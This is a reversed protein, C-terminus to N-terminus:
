SIVCKESKSEADRQPHYNPQEERDVFEIWRYFETHGGYQGHSVYEQKHSVFISVGKKEFIATHATVIEKLKDINWNKTKSGVGAEASHEVLAQYEQMLDKKQMMKEVYIPIKEKLRNRAKGWQKLEEVAVGNPFELTTYVTKIVQGSFNHVDYQPVYTNGLMDVDIFELWRSSGDTSKRKCLAVRIGKDAFDDRFIDVISDFEKDKWKGFLGRTGSEEVVAKVMADYTDMAGKLDLLKKLEPPCQESLKKKGGDLEEVAVGEPVVHRGKAVVTGEVDTM